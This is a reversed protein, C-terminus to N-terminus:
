DKVELSKIVKNAACYAQKDACPTLFWNIFGRPQVLDTFSGPLLWSLIHSHYFASFFWSMDAKRYLYFPMAIRYIYGNRGTIYLYEFGVSEDLLKETRIIGTGKRFNVARPKPGSGTPETPNPRSGQVKYKYSPKLTIGMDVVETADSLPTVEYIHLLGTFLTATHSLIGPPETYKFNIYGDDYTKTRGICPTLVFLTNYHLRSLLTLKSEPGFFYAIIGFCLLFGGPILYKAKGIPKEKMIYFRSDVVPLQRIWRKM